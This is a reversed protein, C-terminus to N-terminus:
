TLDELSARLRQYALRTRSKVTGLPLGLRGAIERQSIDRIFSLEIVERQEAPLAELATIVRQRRQKM